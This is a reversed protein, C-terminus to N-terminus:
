KTFEWAFRNRSAYATGLSRRHLRTRTRIRREMLFEGAPILTLKMGISNTIETKTKLHAAWNAQHKKAAAADFPPM